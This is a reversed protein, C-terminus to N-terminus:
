QQAPRSTKESREAHCPFFVCEVLQKMFHSLYKSLPLLFATPVCSSLTELRFLFFLIFEEELFDYNLQVRLSSYFIVLHPLHSCTWLIM